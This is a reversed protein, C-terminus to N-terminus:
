AAVDLVRELKNTPAAGTLSRSHVTGGSASGHTMDSARESGPAQRALCHPEPMACQRIMMPGGVRGGQALRDSALDHQLNGVCGVSPILSPSEDRQGLVV